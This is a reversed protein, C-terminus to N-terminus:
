KCFREMTEPIAGNGLVLVIDKSSERCLASHLILLTGMTVFVTAATAMKVAPVYYFNFITQSFVFLGAGCDGCLALGVPFYIDSLKEKGPFFVFLIFNDGGM